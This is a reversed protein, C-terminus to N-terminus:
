ARRDKEALLWTLVREQNERAKPKIDDRDLFENCAALWEDLADDHLETLQM